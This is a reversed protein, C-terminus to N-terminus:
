SWDHIQKQMIPQGIQGRPIRSNRLSNRDRHQATKSHIKLRKSGNKLM